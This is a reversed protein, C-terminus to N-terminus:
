FKKWDRTSELEAKTPPQKWGQTEVRAPPDPIVIRSGSRVDVAPTPKFWFDRWAHLAGAQQEPSMSLFEDLNKVSPRPPVILPPLEPQQPKNNTASM